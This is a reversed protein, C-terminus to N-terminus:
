RGTINQEALFSPSSITFSRENRSLTTANDKVVQLLNTNTCYEVQDRRVKPESRSILCQFSALLRMCGYFSADNKWM